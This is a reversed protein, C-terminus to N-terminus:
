GIVEQQTEPINVVLRLDRIETSHNKAAELHAYEQLHRTCFYGVLRWEGEPLPGLDHELDKPRARQRSWLEGVAPDGPGQGCMIQGNNILAQM